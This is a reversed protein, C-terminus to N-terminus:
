ILPRPVVEDGPEADVALSRLVRAVMGYLGVLVVLEVVAAPDLHRRLGDIAEAGAEIQLTEEDAVRLAAQEVASYCGLQSSWDALADVKAQDVGIRRAVDRHRSWEYSCQTLQAVRLIILEQLQPELRSDNWLYRALGYVNELVGPSNALMRYVGFARGREGAIAALMQQAEPDGDATQEVYPLRAM